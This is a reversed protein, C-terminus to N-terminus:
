ELRVFVDLRVTELLILQYSSRKPISQIGPVMNM